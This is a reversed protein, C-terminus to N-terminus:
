NWPEDKTPGYISPVKAGAMRLYLSFQGRHHIEDHLLFWVWELRTFEGMTKPAVFFHVKGNMDEDSASRILERYDKSAMELARLLEDWTKPAEAPKGAPVGKAFEDHFVRTGLARELVFTWALERATKLSPHPKLDIKEPPYARLVRVTKEHERDYAGLFQEKGSTAM